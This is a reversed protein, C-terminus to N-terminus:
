GDLRERAQIGNIVLTVRPSQSESGISGNSFADPPGPFLRHVCVQIRYKM